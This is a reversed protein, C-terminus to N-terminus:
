DTSFEGEDIARLEEASLELEASGASDLVHEV